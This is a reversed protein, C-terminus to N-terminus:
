AVGEGRGQLSNTVPGMGTVELIETEYLTPSGIALSHFYSNILGGPRATRQPPRARAPTVPAAPDRRGDPRRAGRHRM